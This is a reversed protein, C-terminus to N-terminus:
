PDTRRTRATVVTKATERAVAAAECEAAPRIEVIRGIKILDDWGPDVVVKVTARNVRVVEYWGVKTRIFRADPLKSLDLPQPEPQDAQRRLAALERELREVTRGLDAGRRIAADIRLNHQKGRMQSTGAPRDFNAQMAKLTAALEAEKAAIREAVSTRADTVIEASV